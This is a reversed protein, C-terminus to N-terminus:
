SSDCKHGATGCSHCLQDNITRGLLIARFPCCKIFHGQSLINCYTIIKSLSLSALFQHSVAFVPDYSHFINHPCVMHQPLYDDTRRKLQIRHQRGLIAAVYIQLTFIQLNDTGELNPACVIHNAAQRSFISGLTNDACTCAVMRLPHGVGAFRQPNFAFDIHWARCRVLLDLLDPAKATFKHLNNELPIGKIIGIFLCKM